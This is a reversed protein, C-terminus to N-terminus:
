KPTSTFSPADMATRDVGAEELGDLNSLSIGDIWDMVLVSESSLDGVLGPISVTDDDAFTRHVADINSAEAMFDTEALLMRSFEGVIGTPDYRRLRRSLRALRTLAALVTIDAEIESRIDPRRIKVAVPRGDIMTARHVQGVSASAVPAMDFAAFVNSVASGTGRCLEAIVIETPITSVHDRLQSLEQQLSPPILDSRTSLLQGLKVFTPGLEELRTASPADYLLHGSTERHGFVDSAGHWIM